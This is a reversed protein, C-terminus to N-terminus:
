LGCSEALTCVVSIGDNSFLLLVHYHLLQHELESVKSGRENFIIEVDLIKGFQQLSFLFVSSSLPASISNSLRVQQSNM